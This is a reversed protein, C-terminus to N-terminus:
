NNVSEYRGFKCSRRAEYVNIVISGNQMFIFYTSLFKGVLNETLIEYLEGNTIAEVSASLVFVSLLALM